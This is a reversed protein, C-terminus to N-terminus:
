KNYIYVITYPIIYLGALNWQFISPYFHKNIEGVLCVQYIHIYEKTLVMGHVEMDLMYRMWLWWIDGIIQIVQSIGMVECVELHHHVLLNVMQNNLMAM